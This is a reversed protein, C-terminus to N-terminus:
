GGNQLTMMCSAWGGWQEIVQDVLWTGKHPGTLLTVLDGGKVEPRVVADIECSLWMKKKVGGMNIGQVQALDRATTPQVQAWIDFEDSYTPTRTGNAAPAYGTSFRISAATWENVASVVGAAIASLDPISM